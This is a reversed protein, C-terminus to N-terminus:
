SLVYGSSPSIFRCPWLVERYSETMVVARSLRAASGAPPPLEQKCVLRARASDSPGSPRKQAHCRCASSSLPVGAEPFTGSGGPGQSPVDVLM